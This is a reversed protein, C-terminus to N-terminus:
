TTSSRSCTPRCASAAPANLESAFTQLTGFKSATMGGVAADELISLVSNYSLSGNQLHKAIDTALAPDQSTGKTPSAASPSANSGQSPKPTPLSGGSRLARENETLWSLAAATTREPVGDFHSAWSADFWDWGFASPQGDDATRDNLLFRRTSVRWSRFRRILSFRTRDAGAGRVRAKGRSLPRISAKKRAVAGVTWRRGERISAAHRFQTFKRGIRSKGAM